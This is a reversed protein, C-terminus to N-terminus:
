NREIEKGIKILKIPIMIIFYRKKLKNNRNDYNQFQWCYRDVSSVVMKIIIFVERQEKGKKYNVYRGM